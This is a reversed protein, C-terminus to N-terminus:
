HIKVLASESCRELVVLAAVLPALWATFVPGSTGVPLLLAALIGIIAIVQAAELLAEPFSVGVGHLDTDAGM